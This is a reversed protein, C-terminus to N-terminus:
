TRYRNSFIFKGITQRVRKAQRAAISDFNIGNRFENTYDIGNIAITDYELYCGRRLVARHEAARREVKRIMRLLRRLRRM